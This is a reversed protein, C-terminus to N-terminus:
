SEKHCCALGIWGPGGRPHHIPTNEPYRQGCGACVGSFISYMTPGGPINPLPPLTSQTM